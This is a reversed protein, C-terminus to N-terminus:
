VLMHASQGPIISIYSLYIINKHTLSLYLYRYLNYFLFNEFDM